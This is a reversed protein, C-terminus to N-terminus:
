NKRKKCYSICLNCRAECNASFSSKSLTARCFITHTKMHAHTRTYTTHTTRTHTHTTHPTHTRTHVHNYQAQHQVQVHTNHKHTNHRCTFAYQAQTSTYTYKCTFTNHKCTFTHQAQAHIHKSIRACKVWEERAYSYKEFGCVTFILIISFSTFSTLSTMNSWTRLYCFVVLCSYVKRSGKM